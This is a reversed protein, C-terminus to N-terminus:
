IVSCYYPIYHDISALCSYMYIALITYPHSHTECRAM